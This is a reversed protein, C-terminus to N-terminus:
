RFVDVVLIMVYILHALIFGLLMADKQGWVKRMWARIDTWWLLEGRDRRASKLGTLGDLSDHNNNQQYKFLENKDIKYKAWHGMTERDEFGYECETHKEEDSASVAHKTLRPVGYGCSTQV